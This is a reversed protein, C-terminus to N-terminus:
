PYSSLSAWYPPSVPNYEEMNFIPNNCEVLNQNQHYKNSSRIAGSTSEVTEEGSIETYGCASVQKLSGQDRLMIKLKTNEEQLKQKEKNIIEYEQKLSEYLREINKNKWRARKNQFWVAIQRPQLGLDRSLKIKREPDLKIEDQFCRELLEVQDTTLRKKKPDQGPVLGHRSSSAETQNKMEMGQFQDYNNYNNYPPFGYSCEPRSGFHRFNSNWDM